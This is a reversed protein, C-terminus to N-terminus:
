DWPNDDRLKLAVLVGGWVYRTVPGFLIGAWVLAILSPIPEYWFGVFIILLSCFIPVLAPM